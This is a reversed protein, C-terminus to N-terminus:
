NSPLLITVTSGSDVVSAVEIQGNHLAIIRQALSLGLGSGSNLPRYSKARYFREFIHPLDSEAIGIGTDRVSIAVHREHRVIAIHITGGNETYHIANEVM